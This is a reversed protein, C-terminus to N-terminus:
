LESIAAETGDPMRVTEFAAAAGFLDNIQMPRDKRQEISDKTRGRLRSQLWPRTAAGLMRLAESADQQGSGWCRSGAEAM